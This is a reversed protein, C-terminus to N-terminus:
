ENEDDASSVLVFCFLNSLNSFRAEGNFIEALM